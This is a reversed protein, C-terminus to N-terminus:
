VGEDDPYALMGFQTLDLGEAEIEPDVRMRRSANVVAFVVYTLGFAFLACMTAGVLQAAAQLADGHILGTVGQTSGNAFVGLAVAGWWGCYGHVAISGCPDDIKLTRENFLVGLCALVGAGAGIILSAAPGVFPASASIGVLGALLGNCAMSVDPKGYSFYWFSMAAAAGSVAAINVNIAVHAAVDALPTSAAMLGTWGFLVVLTGVTVFIINHALFPRPQGDRGYKGLRPGLILALAMACFGGLSHVVSSGGFDIFDRGLRLTSGIHSLWGGGWVWQACVPYLVAGLFLECLVFAGFTIRECVAGVLVYGAVLMLAIDLMLRSDIPIGRLLFGHLGSQLAHGVAYYALFAFVYASFTLMVLHAANKKRVLGSTLLTFGVQVLLGLLVASLSTM